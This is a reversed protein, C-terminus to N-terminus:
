LLGLVLGIIGLLVSVIGLWVAIRYAPDSAISAWRLKGLLLTKKFVFDAEEGVKIELVNRIREDVQIVAATSDGLGRLIGYTAKKGVIIRCIRGEQIIRGNKLKRQCEPVRIIDRYVDVSESKCVKLKM